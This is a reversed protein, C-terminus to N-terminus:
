LRAPEFRQVAVQSSITGRHKADILMGISSDPAMEVHEPAPTDTPCMDAFVLNRQGTRDPFHVAVVVARAGSVSMRHMVSAVTEQENAALIPRDNVYNNSAIHDRGARTALFRSVARVADRRAPTVGIVTM